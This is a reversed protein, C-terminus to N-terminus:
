GCRGSKQINSLRTRDAKAQDKERMFHELTPLLAEHLPPLPQAISYYSWVGERRDCLWGANKLHALHRSVTSQPLQLVEMFDCVCLEGTDILLALIRLRIQESLAQFTLATLEM